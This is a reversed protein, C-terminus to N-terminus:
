VVACFGSSLGLPYVAVVQFIGEPVRGRFLFFWFLGSMAASGPPCHNRSRVCNM